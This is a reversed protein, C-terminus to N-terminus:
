TLQLEEAEFEQGNSEREPPRARTSERESEGARESRGEREPMRGGESAICSIPLPTVASRAASCMVEQSFIGEDVLAKADRLAKLYTPDMRPSGRVEREEQM